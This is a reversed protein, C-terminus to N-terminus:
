TSMTCLVSDLVEMSACKYTEAVSDDKGFHQAEPSTGELEMQLRTIHHSTTSLQWQQVAALSSGTIMATQAATFSLLWLRLPTASQCIYLARAYLHQESPGM